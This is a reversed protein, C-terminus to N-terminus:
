MQTLSVSYVIYLITYSNNVLNNFYITFRKATTKMISKVPSQFTIPRNEVPREVAQKVRSAMLSPM